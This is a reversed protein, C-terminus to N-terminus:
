PGNNGQGNNGNNGNGNGQGNDGNNGIGNGPAASTTTPDQTQGPAVDSPNNKSDNDKNQGPADDSPSGGVEDDQGNGPATDSPNPQGQGNGEDNVQGPATQSPSAPGPNDQNGLGQNGQSELKDIADALLAADSSEDTLEDRLLAIAEDTDGRLNLTESEALREQTRDGVGFLWGGLLDGAREYGRDLPYLLDGPAAADSVAALGINSIALLGLTALALVLSRPRKPRHRSDLARGVVAETRGTSVTGVLSRGYSRLDEIAQNEHDQRIGM